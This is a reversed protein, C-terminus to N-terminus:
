ALAGSSVAASARRFIAPPPRPPPPFPRGADHESTSAASPTLPMLRELLRRTKSTIQCRSLSCSVSRPRSAARRSRAVPMTSRHEATLSIPGRSSERDTALWRRGAALIISLRALVIASRCAARYGPRANSNARGRNRNTFRSSGTGGCRACCACTHWHSVIPLVVLEKRPVSGLPAL